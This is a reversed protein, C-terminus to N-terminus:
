VPPTFAGVSVLVNFYPQNTGYDTGESYDTPMSGARYTQTKIYYDRYNDDYFYVFFLTPQMHITQSVYPNDWDENSPYYFIDGGSSVTKNAGMITNSHRIVNFERSQNGQISSSYVAVPCYYFLTGNFSSDIFKDEVFRIQRIVCQGHM